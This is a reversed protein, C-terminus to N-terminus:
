YTSLTQMMLELNALIDAENGADKSTVQCNISYMYNNFVTMIRYVKVTRDNNEYQLWVYDNKGYKKVEAEKFMLGDAPPNLREAEVHQFLIFKAHGNAFDESTQKIDPNKRGDVAYLALSSLESTEGARSFMVLWGPSKDLPKKSIAMQTWSSVTQIRFNAEKSAHEIKSNEQALVTGSLLFVLFFVAIKKM